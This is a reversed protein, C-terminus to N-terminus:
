GRARLVRRGARRFAVASSLEDLTASIHTDDGQGLISARRARTASGGAIARDVADATLAIRRRDTAALVSAAAAPPSAPAVFGMRSQVIAVDALDVRGNGDLDGAAWTAATAKGFNQALIAADARDIRRDLNADGYETRLITRVLHDLDAASVAADGNLNFLSDTSALALARRMYDIDAADVAGNDDLDGAVPPTTPMLYSITLMPRNTATTAERSSFDLGDTLATDAIIVGHNPKSGNLWAQVLAVGAANLPYSQTGSGTTTAGIPAADRDTAATAGAQGWAAAASARNWTVESEVWDRALAYIPYPSSGPDVVNVGISAGIVVAGAPIGALQWKLVAALDVGADEGDIELTTATTGTAGDPMAQRLTADRTGTYGNVGDQFSVTQGGVQIAASRVSEFGDRNVAAVQYSLLTTSFTVTDTFVGLKATGVLTNNRYIRYLDVGSQPDTAETWRLRVQTSSLIRATVNGPTTPPTTDIYSNVTGPTGGLNGSSWVGVDNGYAASNTKALSPGAGDALAPWPAEDDYKVADILVYATGGGSAQPRELYIKEGTNDLTGHALDNYVFIPVNAPVGRAARFAAAEATADGGFLGQVVVAYGGAPITAGLPFTFDFAGRLRWARGQGDDLAVPSATINHIEVYEKEVGAPHYMIENIVLPGIRPAANVAARSTAVLRVFDSGGTSKVYRGISVGPESAEFTQDDRYGLENSLLDGATLVVSDGDASLEFPAARGPHTSASGFHQNETVVLYGNAPVTTGAPFQFRRREFVTDSLYWHSIDIPAATTNFLEIWDGDASGTSNALVENILISGPAVASDLSGPSGGIRNSPRWAASDSYDAAANAPNIASLSYGDGDTHPYWGDSYEFSMLAPGFISSIEITEGANNLSGTFEGAVLLGGGYRSEFAEQNAVVLVFAGPALTAIAGDSFKFDIGDTIALKSLNIPTNGVNTFEIFEFQEDVFPSGAPPSAPHYMIESVVLSDLPVTFVAETLASWEGTTSQTRSKLVTSESLVFPTSYTQASPSLGSNIIATATLRPAALMNADTTSSNMAHIALVNNGAVLKDRQATLDFPQYPLAQSGFVTEPAGGNNTVSRSFGNSGAMWQRSVREAFVISDFVDAGTPNELTLIGGAQQNLNEPSVWVVLTKASIATGITSTKLYDNVGDLILRGGAVSAGGNLVGHATGVQDNANTNFSWLHRLTADAPPAAGGVLPGSTALQQIQAASLAAGYIRAENVAGAFYGDVGAATGTTGSLDLHRLGILVDAVGAAYTQLAGLSTAAATAYVQGNRYITIQNAADYSIAIMVEGSDGRDATAASNWQPAAPANSRAVEQGNLYAVFGDDYRMDLALADIANPDDVNFAYRAYVSNNENVGDGNTDIRSAAPISPSLLDTGILGALATGREFGVGNTGSIWASDDFGTQRWTADLSNSTPVIARLPANEAILTTTAVVPPGSRPDSGDTTYYVTGAPAAISLSDNEDISGGHQLAGNVRYDPAVTSPYLGDAIFQNLVVNSRAPIYSNVVRDREIVWNIDRQYPPERKADGWRASEAVIAQDIENARSVFTEAVAGPTLPGDNFFYKRVRDAFKLRYEPNARLKYHLRAPNQSGERESVDVNVDEFTFDADWNYFRFRGEPSRHRLAYFNKPTSQGAVIGTPGDRDGTYLITINYDILQDIDVYQQLAAYNLPDTLDRDAAIFMADWADRTGNTLAALGTEGFRVGKLVDYDEKEGGLNTEAFSEDPREVLGYLGWFMGNLYLNVYQTHTHVDGPNLEQLDRSVPDRLYLANSVNTAWSQNHGNLVILNDFETVDYGEYLPFDLKTPGFGEKFTLRFSHKPNGLMRSFVGQIRVAANIQFGDDVRYGTYEDPYFFEVSGPKVWADGRSEPNQYIGSAGFLDANNMAISLTPLSTLGETVSHTQSTNNVVNPDVETDWHAGVPATNPQTLVNALFVYSHTISESSRYGAKFAAARVTRTRDISIPGTYLAGNTETPASGDLTYRLTVEPTTSAIELSFPQNYYGRSHSFSLDAVVALFSDSNASGPTPEDFYGITGTDLVTDGAILQPVILFEEDGASANLGQIALVNSGPVLLHRYESIDISEFDVGDEDAPREALASANWAVIDSGESLGYGAAGAQFHSAIQQPTLPVRWLAVEDLYGEYTQSASPAGASDGLGLAAGLPKTTGAYPTPTPVVQLGDSGASVEVGNYFLRLNSGDGILAVHQWGAESGLKVAGLPSHVGTQVNNADVHFASLQSGSRLTFFISNKGSGDWELAIRGFGSLETPYIWAEVTFQGGLDLDAHQPTTFRDRDATSTNVSVAQGVMGPAFTTSTGGVATLNNATVGSNSPSDAARDNLDGDFPYYAVLGSIPSDGGKPANKAAIPQGNLYAVFGDDYKMRLTLQDIAAPDDVHFPARIYATANAGPMTADLPLGIESDYLGTQDYGVGSLGAAWSSDDFGSMYWSSEIDASTPVLARVAAAPGLLSTEQVSGLLGYSVDDLQSPFAPNFEQVITAGDPEVLALYEGDGSLSFNTHLESGAVARDKSSAFVTLYGGAALSVNPLRWRNLDNARDTLHYGDLNIAADGPNHLEIWDSNAGDEDVITGRNLAMFESIVVDGALLQRPELRETTLRRPCISRRRIRHFSSM